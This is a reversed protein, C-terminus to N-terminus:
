AFTTAMFKRWGGFSTIERAGELARPEAVFGKVIRGTALEVSGIALPAPVEAVFSGFAEADLEYVEVEIPAGTAGAHVLAPKPPASNAIEYLRYVPATRTTEVEVMATAVVELRTHPVQTDFAVVQSGWYDTYRFASSRPSVEIRAELTTQGPMTAPTMRVENYSTRVPRDYDIATTHVIRLRSTAPGVTGVPTSM